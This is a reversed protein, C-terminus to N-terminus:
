VIRKTPLTLHTYSVPSISEIRLRKHAYQNKKVTVVPHIPAIVAKDGPELYPLDQGDAAKPFEKSIPKIKKWADQKHQRQTANVRKLKMCDYCVESDTQDGVLLGTSECNECEILKWHCENTLCLQMRKDNYKGQESDDAAGWTWDARPQILKCTKNLENLREEDDSSWLFRRECDDIVAPNLLVGIVESSLKETTRNSVSQILVDHYDKLRDYLPDTQPMVDTRPLFQKEAEAIKASFSTKLNDKRTNTAKHQRWNNAAADTLRETHETNIESCHRVSHVESQNIHSINSEREAVSIRKKQNHIRMSRRVSCSTSDVTSVSLSDTKLSSVGDAQVLGVSVADDVPVTSSHRKRKHVSLGRATDHVSGCGDVNCVYRGSTSELRGQHPEVDPQNSQSVNSDTEALITTTKENHIRFSSRDSCITSHVELSRVDHAQVVDVSVADDVSLTSSHRRRKHMSLGKAKDFVSECGDVDCIYQGNISMACVHNTEVDRAARSEATRKRKRSGNTKVGTASNVSYDVDTSGRTISTETINRAELSMDIGTDNVDVNVGHRNSSNECKCDASPQSHKHRHIDVRQRNSNSYSCGAFDCFYVTTERNTTQPGVDVSHHKSITESRHVRVKHMALSKAKNAVYNCGPFDCTHMTKQLEAAARENSMARETVQPNFEAIPNNLIRIGAFQQPFAHVFEFSYQRQLCQWADDSAHLNRRDIGHTHAAIPIVPPCCIGNLVDFHGASNLLCVYGRTGSENFVHWQKNELSYVCVCVGYLLSIAAFHGDECWADTGVSFGLQVRETANRMFHAYDNLTSSSNQRSAFNTRLRFLDPVNAFVSLCDDIIDAYSVQSGTFCFSLANFGCFGSSSMKIIEYKNGFCDFLTDM